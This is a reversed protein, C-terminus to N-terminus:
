GGPHMELRLCTEFHMLFCDEQVSLFRCCRYKPSSHPGATCISVHTIGPMHDVLTCAESLQGVNVPAPALSGICLQIGLSQFSHSLARGGHLQGPLLDQLLGQCLHHGATLSCSLLAAARRRMLTHQKGDATCLGEYGANDAGHDEQHSSFCACGSTESAEFVQCARAILLLKQYSCQRSVLGM